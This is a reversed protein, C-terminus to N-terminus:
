ELYRKGEDIMQRFTLGEGLTRNQRKSYAQFEEIVKKVDPKEEPPPVLQAVPKGHKTIVITESRSVRELLAPLHTKAEYSGVTSVVVEQAEFFVLRVVLRISLLHNPLFTEIM